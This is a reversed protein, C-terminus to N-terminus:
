QIITTTQQETTDSVPKDQATHQIFQNINIPTDHAPEDQSFASASTFLSGATSQIDAPAKYTVSQPLEPRQLQDLYVSSED